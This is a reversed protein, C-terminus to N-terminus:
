RAETVPVRRTPVRQTVPAVGAVRRRANEFALWLEQVGVLRARRPFTAMLWLPALHARCITISEVAKAGCPLAVALNPSCITLAHSTFLPRGCLPCTPITSPQSSLASLKEQENM